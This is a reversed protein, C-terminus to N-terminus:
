NYFLLFYLCIFAFILLSLHNFFCNMFPKFSFATVDSIILSSVAIFSVPSTAIYFVSINLCYSYLFYSNMEIPVQNSGESDFPNFVDVNEFITFKLFTAYSLIHCLFYALCLNYFKLATYLPGVPVILHTNTATLHPTLTPTNTLTNAYHQTYM